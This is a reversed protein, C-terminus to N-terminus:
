LAMQPEYLMADCVCIGFSSMVENMGGCVCDERNLLEWICASLVVSVGVRYISGVCHEGDVGGVGLGARWVEEGCAYIVVAGDVVRLPIPLGLCVVFTHVCWHKVGKRKRRRHFNLSAPLGISVVVWLFEVRRSGRGGGARCVWRGARL